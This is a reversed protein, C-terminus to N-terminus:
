GLSSQPSVKNHGKMAVGARTNCGAQLLPRLSTLKPIGGLGVTRHREWALLQIQKLISWLDLFAACFCGTEPVALVDGEGSGLIAELLGLGCRGPM